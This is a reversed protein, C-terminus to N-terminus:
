KSVSPRVEACAPRGARMQTKQLSAKSLRALRLLVVDKPRTRSGLLAFSPTVFFSISAGSPATSDIGKSSFHTPSCYSILYVASSAPSNPSCMQLLSAPPLLRLTRTARGSGEVRSGEVGAMCVCACTCM